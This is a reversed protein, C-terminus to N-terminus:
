VRAFVQQKTFMRGLRAAIAEHPVDTLNEVEVVKCDLGRAWRAMDDYFFAAQALLRRDELDAVLVFMEHVATGQVLGITSRREALMVMAIDQAPAALFLHENSEVYNRLWAGIYGEALKLEDCLRPVLWRGATSLDALAFRHSVPAVVVPEKVALQAM